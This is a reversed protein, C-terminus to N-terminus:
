VYLQQVFDSTSAAVSFTGTDSSPTELKAPDEKSVERTIELDRLLYSALAIPQLYM